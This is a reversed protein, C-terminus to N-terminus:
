VNRLEKLWEVAKDREDMYEYIVDIRIGYEPAARGDIPRLAFEEVKRIKGGLSIDIGEKRGEKRAERQAQILIESIKKEWEYM